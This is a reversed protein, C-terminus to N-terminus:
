PFTDYLKQGDEPVWLHFRMPIESTNVLHFYKVHWFNYSVNGYDLEEVDFHFTPGIVRGKFHLELEDRSGQVHIRFTESVIGIIDSCFSIEIPQTSGAAISGSSPSFKFKGGFLTDQRQFGFKAEISGRNELVVEYQHISNIFIDGLDLSDFSLACQPGLGTGNIKLPMRESKGQIDLYAVSPYSKALQPNFTVVFERFGKAPITGQIPEITFVPDDYLLPLDPASARRSKLARSSGGAAAGDSKLMRQRAMTEEEESGHEKWCYSVTADSNNCVKVIGQRELSIFTKPIELKDTDMTIEVDHCEGTVRMTQTDGNGLDFIITSEFRKLATPTFEVAVQMDGQPAIAGFTPNIGFPAGAAARWQCAKTGVNSILVTSRTTARIPGSPFHVVPPFHLHGRSGLATVPVIFKEQETMAILHCEYDTDEEPRFYITYTIALGAAVKLSNKGGRPESIAFFRSEPQLLRIFKATKTQNKFTLTAEYSQHPTFSHFSIDPPSVIFTMDKQSMTGKTTASGAPASSPKASNVASSNNAAASGRSMSMSM